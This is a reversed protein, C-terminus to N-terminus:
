FVPLGTLFFNYNNALLMIHCVSGDGNESVDFLYESPKVEIWKQDHMM